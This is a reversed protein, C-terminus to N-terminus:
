HRMVTVVKKQWYLQFSKQFADLVAQHHEAGAHTHIEAIITLM